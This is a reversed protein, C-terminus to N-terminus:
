RGGLGVVSREDQEVAAVFHRHLRAVVADSEQEDRALRKLFGHRPVAGDDHVGLFLESM